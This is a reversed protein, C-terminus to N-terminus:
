NCTGTNEKATRIIQMQSPAFEESKNRPLERNPFKDTSRRDQSLTKTSKRPGEFCIGAFYRLNPWPREKMMKQFENNM